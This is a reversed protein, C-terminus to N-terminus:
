SGFVVAAQENRTSRVAVDAFGDGNVDGMGAVSFGGEDNVTFGGMQFGNTGNVAPPNINGDAAGDSADFASLKASGGFVVYATSVFGPVPSGGPPVNAIIYDSFGDGNVDGALAVRTGGDLRFGNTANISGLTIVAPYQAM